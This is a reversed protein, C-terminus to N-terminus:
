PDSISFPDRLMDSLSLVGVSTGSHGGGEPATPVQTGGLGQGAQWPLQGHPSWCNGLREAVM